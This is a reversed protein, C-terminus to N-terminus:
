YMKEPIFVGIEEPNLIGKSDKLIVPIGIQNLSDIIKPVAGNPDTYYFVGAFQNPKKPDRFPVIEDPAGNGRHYLVFAQIPTEDNGALSGTISVGDKRIIEQNTFGAQSLMNTFDIRFNETEYDTMGLIIKIPVKTTSKTLTIFRDIKTQPITRWQRESKLQTVKLELASSTIASGILGILDMSLGVLLIVWYVTKLREKVKYPLVKREAREEGWVGVIVAIAGSIGVWIWIWSLSEVTRM